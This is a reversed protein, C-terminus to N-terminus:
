YCKMLFLGPFELAGRLEACRGAGIGPWLSITSHETPRAVQGLAGVDNRLPQTNHESPIEERLVVHLVPLDLLLPNGPQYQHGPEVAHAGLRPVPFEFM